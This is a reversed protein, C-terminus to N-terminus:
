RRRGGVIRAVTFPQELCVPYIPNFVALLKTKIILLTM